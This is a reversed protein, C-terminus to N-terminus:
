WSMLYFPCVCKEAIPWVTEIQMVCCSRYDEKMLIIICVKIQGAKNFNRGKITYLKDIGVRDKGQCQIM